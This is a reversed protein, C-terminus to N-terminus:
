VRKSRFQFSEIGNNGVRLYTHHWSGSSRMTARLQLHAYTAPINTFTVSSAGAAGVTITGIAFMAGTDVATTTLIRGFGVGRAATSRAALIPM